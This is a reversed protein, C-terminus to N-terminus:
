LVKSNSFRLTDFHIVTFHVGDLGKTINQMCAKLGEVIVFEKKGRLIFIKRPGSIFKSM